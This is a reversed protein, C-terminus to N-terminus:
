EAQHTRVYHFVQRLMTSQATKECKPDMEPAKSIYDLYNQFAITPVGCKEVSRKPKTM